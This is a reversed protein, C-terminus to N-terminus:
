FLKQPPRYSIPHFYFMCCIWSKQFAAKSFHSTLFFVFLTCMADLLTISSGAYLPDWGLLMDKLLRKEYQPLNMLLSTKKAIMTLKM